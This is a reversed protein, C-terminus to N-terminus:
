PFVEGPAPARYRFSRSAAIAPLLDRLEYDHAAFATEVGALSPADSDSDDRKFAFRLWQKAMCSRVTGSTALIRSLEVADSFQQDRDDINARSTSDVPLGNDMTRYRGIGDYHEFAFGFPDMLAHCGTACPNQAHVAFRQRTTGGASAPQAPPVNGPPPPLTGCLLKTYVAKGRKVPHSGDAAGTASLFGPQTLLGGRLASAAAGGYMGNLAPATLSFDSTLLAELKGGRALVNKVFEANAAKLAEGVAPTYDPYSTSDKPLEGLEDLELLEAFFTTVTDQAKEDQLMRQAQAAVDEATALRGAAAADFLARDPLSGWIFYSLRSAVDYADLKVAGAELTRPSQPSEWHYLFAPSQLMQELLLGIADKFSMGLSGRGTEYLAQLGATEQPLLPRRFARLGFDDIFRAACAAENGAGASDCPFLQELKSSATRALAEASSRLVEADQTAVLGPRRFLFARDRDDAFGLAPQTTDGLLDRVTNDYERRSLRTLPRLGVSNPDGSMAVGGPTQSSGPAQGNSGPAGSNPQGVPGAAGTGAPGSGGSITGECGNLMLATLATAMLTRKM